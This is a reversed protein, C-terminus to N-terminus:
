EYLAELIGEIAEKKNWGELGFWPAIYKKLHTAERERLFKEVDRNFDSYGICRRSAFEEKLKQTAMMCKKVYKMKKEVSDLLDQERSNENCLRTFDQLIDEIQLLYGKQEVVAESLYFCVARSKVMDPFKDLNTMYLPASVDNIKTEKWNTSLKVEVTSKKGDEYVCPMRVEIQGNSILVTGNYSEYGPINALLIKQIDKQFQVQLTDIEKHRAAISDRYEQAEKDLEALRKVANKIEAMKIQKKNIKRKQFGM